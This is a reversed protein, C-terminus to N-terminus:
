RRILSLVQRAKDTSMPKGIYANVGAKEVRTMDSPAFSSTIVACPISALGPNSKIVSMVQHGDMSPMNLDLIILDPLDLGSVSVTELYSVAESPYEFTIVECSSDIKELNRKFIFSDVQNDEILVIRCTSVIPNSMPLFLNGVGTLSAQPCLYAFSSIPNVRLLSVHLHTKQCLTAVPGETM